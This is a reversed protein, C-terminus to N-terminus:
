NHVLNIKYDILFTCIFNEKKKKNTYNFDSKHTERIM